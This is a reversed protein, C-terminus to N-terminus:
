ARCCPPGTTSTPSDAFRRVCPLHTPHASTGQNTLQQRVKYEILGATGGAATVAAAGGPIIEDGKVQDHLQAFEYADVFANIVVEGIRSVPQYGEILSHRLSPDTPGQFSQYQQYTM